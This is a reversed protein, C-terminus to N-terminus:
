VFVAGASGNEDRHGQGLVQSQRLAIWPRLPDSYADNKVLRLQANGGVGAGQELRVLLIAPSKGTSDNTRLLSMRAPVACCVVYKGGGASNQRVVRGDGLGCFVHEGEDGRGYVTRGAPSLILIGRAPQRHGLDGQVGAAGEAGEAGGQAAEPRLPGATFRIPARCSRVANAKEM